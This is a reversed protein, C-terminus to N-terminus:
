TLQEDEMLLRERIRPISTKEILQDRILEDTLVGFNCTAALESLSAACQQVPEGNGQDRQCSKYREIVSSKKPAFYSELASVVNRFTALTQSM